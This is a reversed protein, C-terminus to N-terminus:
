VLFNHLYKETAGTTMFHNITSLEIVLFKDLLLVTIMPPPIWLAKPSFGERGGGGGGINIVLPPGM